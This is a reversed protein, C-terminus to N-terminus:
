WLMFAYVGGSATWTSSLSSLGQYGYVPTYFAVTFNSATKEIVRFVPAVLGPSPSGNYQYAFDNVIMYRASPAAATFTIVSNYTTNSFTGGIIEEFVGNWAWTARVGTQLSGFAVKLATGGTSLKAGATAVGGVEAYNATQIANGAILDGTITGGIIRNANLTGTQIVGGSINTVNANVQGATIKTYANYAPDSFTVNGDIYLRAGSIRLGPQNGANNITDIIGGPLVVSGTVLKTAGITGNVLLNGDIYSAIAAWTGNGTGPDVYTCFRTEAWGTGAPNYYETVQDTLVCPM